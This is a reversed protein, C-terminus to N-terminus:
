DEADDEEIDRIGALTRAAEPGHREKYIAYLQCM